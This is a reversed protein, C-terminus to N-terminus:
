DAVQDTGSKISRANTQLRITGFVLEM